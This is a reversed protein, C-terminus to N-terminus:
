LSYYLTGTWQIVAKILDVLNTKGQASTPLVQTVLLTILLQLKKMTSAAIIKSKIV